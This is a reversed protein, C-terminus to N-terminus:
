KVDKKQTTGEAVNRTVTTNPHVAAAKGILIGPMTNVRIGLASNEGTIIGLANTGTDIIKNKVLVRVNKRDLRKNATILGAGIKSSHGLISDAIYGYHISSNEFLISRVVETNAGVTSNEELSSGRVFSYDGVLCNRGIYCPGSVKAFDGVKADEDIIIPGRTDDLIATSAVTASSATHSKLDSFLDSLLNFLHWPYKLSQVSDTNKIWTANNEKVFSTIAEELSYENSKTNTLESIFSQEFLYISDVKIDSPETGKAPKEQIGTVKESDSPDFQLMGYLEPRDTKTGSFVTNIQSDQQKRYLKDAIHGLNSYYPSALIFSDSLYEKALLLADGMGTAKEQLVTKINLSTDLSSLFHSFGTDNFDKPSLVFVVDKFGHKELSNLARNVIPQGALSLFGKHTKTNLPHFRSNKGGAIILITPKHNTM